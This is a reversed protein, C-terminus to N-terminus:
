ANPAFVREYNTKVDFLREAVTTTEGRQNSRQTGIVLGSADEPAMLM